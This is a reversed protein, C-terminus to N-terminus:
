PHQLKHGANTTTSAARLNHWYTEAFLYLDHPSALVGTWGKLKWTIAADWLAGAPRGACAGFTLRGRVGLVIAHRQAHMGRPRGARQAGRAALHLPPLALSARQRALVVVRRARARAVAGPAVRAAARRRVIAVAAHKCVAGRVAAGLPRTRRPQIHRGRARAARQRSRGAPSSAM